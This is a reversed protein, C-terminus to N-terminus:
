EEGGCATDNELCQEAEEKAEDVSVGDELENHTFRNLCGLCWIEYYGDNRVIALLRRHELFQFRGDASTQWLYNM